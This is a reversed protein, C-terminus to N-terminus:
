AAVTETVAARRSPMQEPTAIGLLSLCLTLQRKVIAVLALRAARTADAVDPALVPSTTYFASFAQALTFAHEALVSPEYDSLSADVARPFELLGLILAREEANEVVVAGPEAGVEAARRLIANARAVAYQLYPGTKGQFRAFTETDFVYDSRRNNKLDQFKIAAVSIEDALRALDIGEATEPLEESAKDRAFSLLDELRMVGGARTKFPKGDAGNVTGFAVHRLEVGPALWAMASARFVQEFHQSQRNDVVYVIRQAQQDRVRAVITALDTAGYTYGGDSKELILPPQPRTADADALPIVLAGESEEAIGRARLSDIMGPLIDAVDSEGLWLDFHVDLADYNRRVAAFSVDRFHRWLALYGPRHEQLAATAIRAAERAAPDEKFRAAARRYLASLAEIDLPPEPPYGDTKAVDFYPLAPQEHELERILMGYPTGWDGFHVDSVVHHGAFRLVRQLADGIIASRLHGVHMEKAINPGGFDLVVREPMAIPAHGQRDDDLLGDAAVSLAAETLRLNIFGPGAVEVVAFLDARDRLANAISDALTRPALGVTRALAMCDNCQYDALDPRQSRVARVPASNIGAAAFAHALATDINRSLTM